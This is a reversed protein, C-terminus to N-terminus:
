IDLLKSGHIVRIITILEDNRLWYVIRYHGYILERTDEQDFEPVIRGAKPFDYLIHLHNLLSDIFEAAYRASDLAIYDGISELDM